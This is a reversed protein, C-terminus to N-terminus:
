GHGEQHLLLSPYCVSALGGQFMRSEPVPWFSRVAESDPGSQGCGCGHDSHEGDGTWGGQKKILGPLLSYKSYM